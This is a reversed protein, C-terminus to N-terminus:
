RPAIWGQEAFLKGLEKAIEAAAAKADAEVTQSRAGLVGIGASAAASAAARGAAAGAGAMPGMGPKRSSKVTTYFDEVLRRGENTTEYVQVLTRVESAGAGFGVVMRKLRNGEDVSVFQGDVTLTPGPLPAGGALQAPMGQARIENVLNESVIRAIEKGIKIRDETETGKAMELARAGLASDLAVADASVAFDHVYIMQPRPLGLARVNVNEVSVRACGTIGLLALSGVGITRALDRLRRRPGNTISKNWDNKM